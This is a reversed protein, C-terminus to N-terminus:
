ADFAEEAVSGDLEEILADMQLWFERGDADFASWTGQFAGDRECDVTGVTPRVYQPISLSGDQGLIEATSAVAAFGPEDAFARYADVIRAQHEPKLSSLARERAVEHVADIFLVKGRRETAKRSRCIVICAEMPSNYFLNPGLGLVCELVDSEVLKRRM